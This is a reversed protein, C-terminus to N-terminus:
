PQRKRVGSATDAAGQGGTEGPVGQVGQLGQVGQVGQVGQLGRFATAALRRTGDPTEVIATDTEQVPRNLLILENIHPM